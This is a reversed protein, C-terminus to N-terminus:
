SVSAKIEAARQMFYERSIEGHNHLWDLVFIDARAAMRRYQEALSYQDWKEGEEKRMDDTDLEINFPVGKSTVAGSSIKM